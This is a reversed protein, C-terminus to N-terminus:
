RELIKVVKGAKRARRITSWTGSRLIEANEFPAAILIECREAIVQNRELPKMPPYCAYPDACHARKWHIDCPYLIIRCAPFVRQVLQHAEADAGVCDGHLFMEPQLWALTAHLAEKQAESMGQQTGTFGVVMTM